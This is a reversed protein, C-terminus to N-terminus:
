LRKYTTKKKKGYTTKAIFGKRKSLSFSPKRM